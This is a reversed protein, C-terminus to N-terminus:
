ELFMRSQLHHQQFAELAHSLKNGMAEMDQKIVTEQQRKQQKVPLMLRCPGEKSQLARIKLDKQVSFVKGVGHDRKPIIKPLRQHNKLTIQRSHQVRSQQRQQKRQASPQQCTTTPTGHGAKSPKLKSVASQGHQGAFVSDSLLISVDSHTFEAV